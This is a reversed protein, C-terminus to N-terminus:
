MKFVSLEKKMNLNSIFEENKSLKCIAQNSVNFIKCIIKIDISKKTEICFLNVIASCVTQPRKDDFKPFIQNCIQRLFEGERNTFDLEYKAISIFYSPKVPTFSCLLKDMNWLSKIKVNSYLSLKAPLVPLELRCMSNYICYVLIENKEFHNKINERSLSEKMDLAMYFVANSLCLNECINYIYFYDSDPTDIVRLQSKSRGHLDNSIVLACDKCVRTGEREDLLINDHSCESSFFTQRYGGFM